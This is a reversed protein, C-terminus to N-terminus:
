NEESSKSPIQKKESDTSKEAIEGKVRKREFDCYMLTGAVAALPPVLFIGCPILFMPLGFGLSFSFNSWVWKVKKGLSLSRRDMPFCFADLTLFMVTIFFNLTTAVPAGIIPIFGVMLAIILLPITLALRKIVERVAHQAGDFITIPPALLEPYEKLEKQEIKEGLLDHMPAGVLITSLLAAAIGLVLLLITVFFGGIWRLTVLYWTDPDPLLEIINPYVFGSMILYIIPLIIFFNIVWPAVAYKFFELNRLLYGLARFPAFFGQRFSYQANNIFSITSKIM